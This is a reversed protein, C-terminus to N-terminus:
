YVCHKPLQGTLSFGIDLSIDDSHYVMKAEYNIIITNATALWIIYM